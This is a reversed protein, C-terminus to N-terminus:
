KQSFKYSKEIKESHGGLIKPPKVHLSWFLRWNTITLNDAHVQEVEIREDRPDWNFDEASINSATQLEQERKKLIYKYNTPSLAGQKRFFFFRHLVFKYNM